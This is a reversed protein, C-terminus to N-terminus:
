RAPERAALAAEVLLDLGFEFGAHHDPNMRFQGALRLVTYGHVMTWLTEALWFGREPEPLADPVVRLRRAYIQVPANGTATISGADAATRLVLGYRGIRQPAADASPLLLEGDLVLLEQATTGEPWPLTAGPALRMLAVEAQGHTVLVAAECGPAASQWRLDERRVTRFPQHRLISTRARAQLREGIADARAATFSSKM